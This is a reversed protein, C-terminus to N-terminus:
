QSSFNHASPYGRQAIIADLLQDICKTTAWSSLVVRNLPQGTHDPYPFSSILINSKLLKNYLDRDKSFYVPYGKIFDWEEPNIRESFYAMHTQLKDLETQYITAAHMFAYLGAAAPPSAGLFENTKKLGAIVDKDALIIGADVGLAKAMSAVVVVKIHKAKYITNLVGQGNDLIGIGHSDDAILVIDNEPRIDKLFSFDYREPFLNNLSNSVLVWKTQKSQNIHAVTHKAWSTFTALVDPADKLWLAPHTQPAYILTGYNLFSRILLQAALYGSSTILAAGAGFYQAAYSEAEDYIALQVNNGRSTGNNLGFKKLGEMYLAIFVKNQPIGLYATGSFYSYSQGGISINLALPSQLRTLDMNSGKM